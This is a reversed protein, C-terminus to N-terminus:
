GPEMSGSRRRGDSRDRCRQIAEERKSGARSHEGSKAPRDGGSVSIGADVSALLDGLGMRRAQYPRAPLQDIAGAGQRGKFPLPLHEIEQPGM